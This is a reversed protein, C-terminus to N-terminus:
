SSSRVVQKQNNLELTQGDPCSSQDAYGGTILDSISTPSENEEMEYVSVQAQLLKITAECGKEGAVANNKTMNPIAILLLISIIMLVVLMEVLTFGRKCYLYRKM